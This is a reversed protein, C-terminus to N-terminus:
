IKVVVANDEVKRKLHEIIIESIVDIIEDVKDEKNM